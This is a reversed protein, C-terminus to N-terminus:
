QWKIKDEKRTDVVDFGEHMCYKLLEELDALTALQISYTPVVPNLLAYVKREYPFITLHTHLMVGNKMNKSKYIFALKM